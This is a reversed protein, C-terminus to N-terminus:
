RVLRKGTFKLEFPRRSIRSRKMRNCWQLLKEEVEKVNETGIQKSIENRFRDRRLKRDTSRFYKLDM